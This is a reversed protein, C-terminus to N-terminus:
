ACHKFDFPRELKVLKPTLKTGKRYIRNGRAVERDTFARGARMFIRNSRIALNVWKEIRTADAPPTQIEGIDELLAIFLRTARVLLRGAKVAKGKEGAKFFAKVLPITRDNSDKCIADAQRVWQERTPDTDYGGQAGALAPLALAVIAVGAISAIRAVSRRVRRYGPVTRHTAWRRM